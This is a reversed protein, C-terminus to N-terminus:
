LQSSFIFFLTNIASIRNLLTDTTRRTTKFCSLMCHKYSFMSLFVIKAICTTFRARIIFSVTWPTCFSLTLAGFAQHLFSMSFTKAMTTVFSSNSLNTFSTPKFADRKTICSGPIVPYLNFLQQHLLSISANIGLFFKNDTFICAKIMNYRFAFSTRVIYFIKLPCSKKHIGSHFKIERM